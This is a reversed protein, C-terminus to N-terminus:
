VQRVAIDYIAGTRDECLSALDCVRGYIKGYKIINLPEDTYIRHTARANLMYVEKEIEKVSIYHPLIDKPKGKGKLHTFASTMEAMSRKLMGIGEEMDPLSECERGFIYVHNSTDVLLHMMSKIENVMENIEVPDIPTIFASELMEKIERLQNETIHEIERMKEHMQKHDGPELFGSSLLNIGDSVNDMMGSISDYFKEDKPVLWDFFTM